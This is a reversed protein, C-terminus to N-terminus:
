ASSHETKVVRGYGGEGADNIAFLTNGTDALGQAVAGIAWGDGGGNVIGGGGGGRGGGGGSTARRGAVLRSARGWWARGGAGGRRVVRGEGAEGCMNLVVDTKKDALANARAAAGSSVRRARCDALRAVSAFEDAMGRGDARAAITSGGGGGAGGGIVGVVVDGGGRGGVIGGGDGSDGGVLGVIWWSGM